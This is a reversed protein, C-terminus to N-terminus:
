CQEWAEKLDLVAPLMKFTKDRVKHITINVDTYTFSAIHPLFVGQRLVASFFFSPFNGAPHQRPGQPADWMAAGM